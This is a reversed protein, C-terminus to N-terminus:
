VEGYFNVFCGNVFLWNNVCLEFVVKKCFKFNFVNDKSDRGYVEEVVGRFYKVVM